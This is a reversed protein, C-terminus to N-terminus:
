RVMLRSTLVSNGTRVVVTYIGHAYGGINTNYLKQGAPLTASTVVQGLANYINLTAAETAKTDLLLTVDDSAPNPYVVIKGNATNNENVATTSEHAPLEIFDVWVADENESAMEDKIYSWTFTHEGTTVPFSVREWDVVGSWGAKEVGDIYFRLFDWDQESSIRRFFAISDNATVNLSLEMITSQGDTIEGSRSSYSGEYKIANDITWPVNGAQLWNYATYDGTELDEVLMNIKEVKSLQAGYAGATITYNFTVYHNVPTNADATFSFAANGTASIALPNLTGSPNNINIFPDTCSVTVTANTTASHGSNLNTFSITATEGAEVRGNNNGQPDAIAVTPIQLVPANLMVSVYSTWTHSGDTLIVDFNALTQDAVSSSVTFSFAPSLTTSSQPLVLAATYTSDTITINPNTSRLKVLINTAQLDGANELVVSMDIGEGYEAVGNNNGPNNDILQNSQLVVYPGSTSTVLMDGIYPAANFATATIHITDTLSIAPLLSVNAVGGNVYATGLIIDNQTIAVLAGEINCTVAITNTGIPTTPAHSATLQIPDKTRIIVSPDGFCHWTDTMEDGAAGYVDNMHYCGNVSVGGFSYISTPDLNGVVIDVMGDQGAMPPDWSQNISSMFAAIAGTPTGNSNARLWAEGFCTGNDFEGNVCGVSWIFPWISTNTLTNINTNSFGTTGWSVSSGHGTYNIIGTGNNVETVIASASPDGAADNGGNQHSSDFYENYDVYGYGSLKIRINRGHEWDMENNDGPGENSAINTQHDFRTNGMPPTIEYKLVKTVQTNVHAVSEASFRGIFVEAYSDAGSLYGYSPDSKGGSLTPSTIQALDGVLLVYKLNHNNYYNTIYTKIAASTNGINAISVMETPIGKRIKWKVYPQMASMFAADSIILLSGIESLPSTAKEATYNVFHSKYIRTFEKDPHKQTSTLENEGAGDISVVKVTIENIVRLTKTVPNYQFPQIQLAQGRCDRLIYPKDLEAYKAPYFENKSYEAGKWYPVDAPNVTRKLNGKSPALDINPVDYYNVNVVQVMTNGMNPIQIAATIRPLDPAGKVLMRHAGNLVLKTMGNEVPEQSFSNLSFKLTTNGQTADIVRMDYGNAIQGTTAISHDTWQGVTVTGVVPMNVLDELPETEADWVYNITPPISHPVLGQANVAFNSAGFAVFLSLVRKFSTNIIKM